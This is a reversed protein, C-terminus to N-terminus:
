QCPPCTVMTGDSQGAAEPEVVVCVGAVVRHPELGSGELISFYEPGDCGTHKRNWNESVVRGRDQRADEAARWVAEQEAREQSEQTKQLEYQRRREAAQIADLRSNAQDAAAQAEEAKRQIRRQQELAEQAQQEVRKLHFYTAADSGDDALACNCILWILFSFFLANSRMTM